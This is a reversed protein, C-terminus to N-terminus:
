LPTKHRSQVNLTIRSHADKQFEESLITKLEDDNTPTGGHWESSSQVSNWQTFLDCIEVTEWSAFM